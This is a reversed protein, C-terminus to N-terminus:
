NKELINTLRNILNEVENETYPYLNVNMTKSNAWGEVRIKYEELSDLIMKIDKTELNINMLVDEDDEDWLTDILVCFYFTIFCGVTVFFGDM